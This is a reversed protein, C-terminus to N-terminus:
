STSSEEIAPRPWWEGGDRMWPSPPRPPVHRRLTSRRAISEAEVADLLQQLANAAVHPLLWAGTKARWDIFGYPSREPNREAYSKGSRHRPEGQRPTVQFIPMNDEWHENLDRGEILESRLTPDVDVTSPPQLDLARMLQRGAILAFHRDIRASWVITPDLKQGALQQGLLHAIAAEWRDLPQRTAVAWFMREV